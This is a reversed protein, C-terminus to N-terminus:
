QRRVGAQRAYLYGIGGPMSEKWVEYGKRELISAVEQLNHHCEVAVNLIKDLARQSAGRFIGLEAGECDVKLFHCRELGSMIEDLTTAHVLYSRHDEGFPSVITSNEDVKPGEFFKIRGHKQWVAKNFVSIPLGRANEALLGFSNHAPEYAYVIAGKGAALVAFPGFSAGIDVVVDGQRIRYFKEYLDMLWVEQLSGVSNREFNIKFAPGGRIRFVGMGKRRLFGFRSMLWMPWDKFLIIGAFLLRIRRLSKRM